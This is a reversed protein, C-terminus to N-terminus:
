EEAAGPALFEKVFVQRSPHEECPRNIPTWVPVGKFLRMAHIYEGSDCTFRHYIGEPLTMLDGAKIWIRIWKDAKDRVDFYGSGGLIYRVEEADHIHETFFAKIKTDFEPLHDPHVTIIDAYNYGRDDRIKVLEPDLADSPDWPVSKVPYKYAEADLQWYLIGLAAIDEKTAPVNPELRQEMMQEKGAPIDDPIYWAEPFYDDAKQTKSESEKSEPEQPPHTSVSPLAEKTPVISDMAHFSPQINDILPSPLNAATESASASGLSTSGAAAGLSAEAAGGTAGHDVLAREESSPSAPNPVQSSSPIDMEEHGSWDHNSCCQGM